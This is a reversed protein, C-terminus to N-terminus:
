TTLGYFNYGYNYNPDANENIVLVPCDAQHTVEDLVSGLFFKKISNQSGAGMIILDAKEEEAVEIIKEDIEGEELRVKVKAGVTKAIETIASIEKEAGSNLLEDINKVGVMSLDGEYSPIVKVVTVHCKEDHLLKLGEVLVDKSGNVAIVVNRCNKV